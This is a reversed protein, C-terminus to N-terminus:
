ICDLFERKYFEVLEKYTFVKKWQTTQEIYADQGIRHANGDNIWENILDEM